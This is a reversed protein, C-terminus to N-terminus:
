ATELADVIHLDHAWTEAYSGPLLALMAASLIRSGTQIPLWLMFPRYTLKTM